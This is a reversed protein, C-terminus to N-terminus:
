LNSLDQAVVNYLCISTTTCILHAVDSNSRVEIDFRTLNLNLHTGGAPENEHLDAENEYSLNQM